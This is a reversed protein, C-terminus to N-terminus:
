ESQVQRLHSCAASQSIGICSLSSSPRLLPDKPPVFFLWDSRNKPQYECPGEDQRSFQGQVEPWWQGGAGKIAAGDGRRRAGAPKRETSLWYGFIIYYFEELVKQNFWFINPYFYSESFFIRDPERSDLGLCVIGLM